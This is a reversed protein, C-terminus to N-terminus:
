YTPGTNGHNSNESSFFSVWYNLQGGFTGCSHVTSNTGFGLDESELGTQRKAVNNDRLIHLVMEDWFINLALHVEILTIECSNGPIEGKGELVYYETRLKDMDLFEESAGMRFTLGNEEM